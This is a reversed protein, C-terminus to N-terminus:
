DANGSGSVQATRAVESSYVQTNLSELLLSRFVNVSFHRRADAMKSRAVHSIEPYQSQMTKCAKVLSPVCGDQCSIGAGYQRIQDWMTTGETTIVPMGAVMAEIAVRSVRVAYSSRRYPLVMVDTRNLREAYEDGVFFRRIVDVSAAEVLEKSIEVMKGDDGPINDIWQIAFRIPKAASTGPLPHGTAPQEDGHSSARREDSSENQLILRIAEQFIDSGKEARAVGYCAFLIPASSTASQPYGTSFSSHSIPFPCNSVPSEESAVEDAANQSQREDSSVRGEDRAVKDLAEVPHPLYVVPMGILQALARRMPETEVGLIVKRQEVWPRMKRFLWAMLKTTPSGHWSAKGSEDVRLPLNPFFLLVRSDRVQGSFRLLLYWGLLHHVLVTPVFIVDPPASTAPHETSNTSQGAVRWGSGAVAKLAKRVAIFTEVAHIPVRLYRKIAGAGDSM